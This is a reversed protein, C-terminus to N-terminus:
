ATWINERGTLFELDAFYEPYTKGTCAPNLIQIGEAVLGALAFSMAMRHDHYTEIVAPQIKSPPTIQLGDPFEEVIAGLKRLECALDAIRDTEKFRNHAVNRVRTPGKAVLAVVALTQVTDSIDGMDVDVGHLEGGRVTVSDQNWTVTCGMNELVDCFRVDGQMSTRSLGQVTVEGQTMAAAAWHYSAASADPEIAYHIGQYTQPAPISFLDEGIVESEVGFQRMVQCTMDVYPRSVLEGEVKIKVPGKACPAAMLLGSLFQSSVSGAVSLTGGPWGNSQIIVPPCGDVQECYCTVTFREIAKLLDGIPRERMRPVGDLRYHGGIASLAAVLFRITTGSNAVFLELARSENVPQIGREVFIQKGDDSERLLGGMARLADVMVRTDESRLVGTLHSPKPALAACLLARNSISKSGPPRITGRVPGSPQVTVRTLSHPTVPEM